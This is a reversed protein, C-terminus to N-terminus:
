HLRVQEYGKFAAEFTPTDMDIIPVGEHGKLSDRSLWTIRKGTLLAWTPGPHRRVIIM